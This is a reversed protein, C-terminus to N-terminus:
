HNSDNLMTKIIAERSVNFLYMTIGRTQSIWVEFDTGINLKPLIKVGM